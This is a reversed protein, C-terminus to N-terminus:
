AFAGMARGTNVSLDMDKASVKTAKASWGKPPNIDVSVKGSPQPTPKPQARSLPAPPTRTPQRLARQWEENRSLRAQPEAANVFPVANPREWQMKGAQTKGKADKFPVPSAPPESSRGINKLWDPADYRLGGQKTDWRLGGVYKDAGVEIDGLGKRWITVADSARNAMEYLEEFAGAVGKVDKKFGEWNAEGLRNVVRELARGTRTAWADASGDEEATKFAQTARDLQHKVADGFGSDWVKVAQKSLSDTLASWKGSTTKALAAGGGGFKENLIELTAREVDAGNKNVTKVMEKGLRDVYRLMVKGDQQNPTIGFERMREFQETRADALMGIADEYTKGLAAASDGLTMLSGNMPNIGANRAAIFAQTVQALDFPTDAAFKTIWEMDKRAAEANGSELGLLQTKFNESQVGASVIKYLGGAALAGGAAGATIVGGRIAGGLVGASKVALTTMTAHSLQMRRELGILAASGRRAGAAIRDGMTDASRGLGRASRGASDMRRDAVMMSQAMGTARRNAGRMATDAHSIARDLGRSGDALRDVSREAGRTRRDLAALSSAAGTAAADTGTISRDLAREGNGLGRASREAGQMRRDMAGIAVSTGAAAQGSQVVDKRFQDLPRATRNVAELILSLKM